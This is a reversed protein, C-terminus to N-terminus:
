GRELAVVWGFDCAAWSVRIACLWVWVKGGHISGLRDHNLIRGV